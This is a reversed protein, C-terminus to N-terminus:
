EENVPITNVQDMTLVAKEALLAERLATVDVDKPACGHEIVMAAAIGAAHGMSMCQPMVRVSALSPADMSVCRGAFMLNGIEDSVLCGYPIGFPEQVTKFVTSRSTGSHIDIKYGGLAITDDPIEGNLLMDATLRRIGHFRRTERVGLSPAISSIFCNEFGPVYQRLMETLKQCQLQGELEAHTMDFIDTADTNLLRTSNVYVEGPHMSKIYILTEREIPLKGEERLKTFLMRLGVFVHNKSARFYAADYGPRHDITASYTMEDPHAEIYDFLKETDVDELTYMVTPPQLVGTGEQGSEYSCGALYAVDGDGTCDIFLDASVTVENGKGYFVVSSIKGDVQNVRCAELHLLVQVGAERCMEIAMVKFASPDINTVSNHKPCTRHGICAGTKCLRNVYEQAIGGVIRRGQLDLYGLLPLGLTANGGLYGNKEILTVKRGHRAATIAASLGAPGGGIVLIETNLDFQRMMLEGERKFYM